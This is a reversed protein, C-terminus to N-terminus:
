GPHVLFGMLAAFCCAAQISSLLYTPCMAQHHAPAHHKSFYDAWNTIGPQWFTHFQGQQLCNCIWYFCMDVAKSHCQKITDNVIGSATNNDTQLPTTPQPHGLEDLATCIPCIDQANLFLTGLEAKSASSVVHHLIQCLVHIPGNNPLAPDTTTPPSHPRSSLFAYGATRSHGLPGTLYSADSHMWLVM